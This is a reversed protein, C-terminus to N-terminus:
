AITRAGRSFVEDLKQLNLTSEELVQLAGKRDLDESDTVFEPPAKMSIQGYSYEIAKQLQKKSFKSGQRTGPFSSEAGFLATLSKIMMLIPFQQGFVAAIQALCPLVPEMRRQSNPDESNCAKTVSDGYFRLRRIQELWRKHEEEEVKSM